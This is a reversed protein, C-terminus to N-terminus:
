RVSIRFRRSRAELWWRRNGERRRCPSAPECPMMSLPSRELLPDTEDILSTSDPGARSQWRSLALARQTAPPLPGRRAAMWRVPALRSIWDALGEAPSGHHPLLLLDIPGSALSSALLAAEADGALLMSHRLGLLELVLSRNNTSIPPGARQSGQASIARLHWSGLRLRDGAGIHLVPIGRRSAIRELASGTADLSFGDSVILGGVSGTQLLEPVASYHDLHLHSIIIWDARHRGLRWLERRIMAAGGDLADIAGADYLLTSDPADLLLCQGRGTPLLRVSEVSGMTASISFAGVALLTTGLALRLRGASVWLLALMGLSLAPVGICPALWPSGPCRDALRPIGVLIWDLGHWCPELWSVPLLMEPLMNLLGLLIGAGVPPLMLLTFIPSLPSLEPSWWALAVHAGFFAGLGASLTSHNEGRCFGVVHIGAVASLSITAAPSPPALGMACWILMSFSLAHFPSPIRGGLLGSALMAGTMAARIAPPDAGSLFAQGLVLIAGCCRLSHSWPPRLRRALALFFGLVIGIHLGSVALLHGLGTRRMTWRTEADLLGREGLLLACGWAGDAALLRDIAAQRWHDARAMWGGPEIIHWNRSSSVQRHSGTGARLLLHLRDGRGVRAPEPLTVSIEGEIRLDSCRIQDIKIRTYLNQNALQRRRQGLRPTSSVIGDLTVPGSPLVAEQPQQGQGLYIGILLPLLMRLMLSRPGPLCGIGAVVLLMLPTGIGDPLKWLWPGLTGIWLSLAPIALPSRSAERVESSSIGRHNM